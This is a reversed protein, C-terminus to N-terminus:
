ITCNIIINKIKTKYPWWTEAFRNFNQYMRCRRHIIPWSNSKRHKILKNWRKPNRRRLNNKLKYHKEIPCKQNMQQGARKGRVHNITRWDRCRTRFLLCSIKITNSLKNKTINPTSVTYAIAENCRKRPLYLNMKRESFINQKVTQIVLTEPRHKVNELWKKKWM